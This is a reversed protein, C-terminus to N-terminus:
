LLNFRHVIEFLRNAITQQRTECSMVNVNPMKTSVSEARRKGGNEYRQYNPPTM